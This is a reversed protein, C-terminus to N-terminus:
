RDKKGSDKRRLQAPCAHLAGGAFWIILQKSRKQGTVRRLEKPFKELKVLWTRDDARPTIMRVESIPNLRRVRERRLLCLLKEIRALPLRGTHALLDAAQRESVASEIPASDAFEL